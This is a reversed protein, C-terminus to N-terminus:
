RDHASPPNNQRDRGRDVQLLYPLSFAAVVGVLLVIWIFLVVRRHSKWPYLEARIRLTDAEASQRHHVPM